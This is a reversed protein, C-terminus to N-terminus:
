AIQSTQPQLPMPEGDKPPTRPETAAAEVLSPPQLRRGAKSPLPMGEIKVRFTGTPSSNNIGQEKRTFSLEKRKNEEQPTLTREGGDGKDLSSTDQAQTSSLSAELPLSFYLSPPHTDESSPLPYPLESSLLQFADLEQALLPPNLTDIAPLRNKPVSWSLHKLCHEIWAARDNGFDLLYAHEWLDIGGLLQWSPPCFLWMPDQAKASLLVLQKELAFLWIWCPEIKLTQLISEKIEQLSLSSLWLPPSPEREPKKAKAITEKEEPEKEAKEESEKPGREAAKTGAKKTKADESSTFGGAEGEARDQLSAPSLLESLRALPSVPSPSWQQFFHLHNLLGGAAEWFLLSSKESPLLFSGEKTRFKPKKKLPLSAFSPLSLSLLTKNKASVSAELPARSRKEKELSDEFFPADIEKSSSLLRLIQLLVQQPNSSLSSTAIERGLSSFAPDDEFLLNLSDLYGAIKELHLSIARESLGFGTPSLRPPLPAQLSFADSKRFRSDFRKQWEQLLHKYAHDSLSWVPRRKPADGLGLDKINSELSEPVLPSAAGLAKDQSERFLTEESSLPEVGQSSHSRRLSNPPNRELSIPLSPSALTSNGAPSASPATSASASPAPSPPSLQSASSSFLLRKDQYPNLHLAQREKERRQKHQLLIAEDKKEEDKQRKWLKKATAVIEVHPWNEIKMQKLIEVHDPWLRHFLGGIAERRGTTPHIGYRVDQWMWLESNDIGYGPPSSSGSPSVPPQKVRPSLLLNKM